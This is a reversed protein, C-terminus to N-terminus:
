SDQLTFAGKKGTEALALALSRVLDCFFISRNNINKIL